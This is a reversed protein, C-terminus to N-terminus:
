LHPTGLPKPAPRKISDFIGNPPDIRLGPQQGGLQEVGGGCDLLECSVVRSSTLSFHPDKAAEQVAPSAPPESVCRVKEPPFFWPSLLARKYQATSGQPLPSTPLPLSKRKGEELPGTKSNKAGVTHLFKGGLNRSKWLPESTQHHNDLNNNELPGWTM